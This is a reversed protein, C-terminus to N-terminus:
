LLTEFEKLNAINELVIDDRSNVFNVLVQYNDKFQRENLGNVYSMELEKILFSLSMILIYM